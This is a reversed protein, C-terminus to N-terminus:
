LAARHCAPQSPQLFPLPSELWGRGAGQGGAWGRVTYKSGNAVNDAVASTGAVVFRLVQPSAPPCM